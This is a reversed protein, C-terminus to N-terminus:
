TKSQSQSGIQIQPNKRNPNPKIGHRKRIAAVRAKMNNNRLRAADLTAILHDLMEEKENLEAPMTGLREIAAVCEVQLRQLDQQQFTENDPYLTELNFAHPVKPFGRQPDAIIRHPLQLPKNDARAQQGCAVMTEILTLLRETASGHFELQDHLTTEQFLMRHGPPDALQQLTENLHLPARISWAGQVYQPRNHFDLIATPRKKLISELYLTSPTTIVADVENIVESLPKRKAGPTESDTNPKPLGIAEELGDTLRWTIECPRGNVKPNKQFRQYIQTLSTIVIARQQENFAPTNATAILLRFPGKTQIPAVTVPDLSDFRPLGIFECKGVNGWSEIVRTQGRGICALKHACLPQFMSGDPLKSHEWTNRYELIGDALVLVPVNNRQHIQRLKAIEEHRYHMHTIVIGADQPLEWQQLNDSVIEVPLPCRDLWPTYIPSQAAFRCLIYARLSM